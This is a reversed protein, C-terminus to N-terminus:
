KGKRVPRPVNEAGKLEKYLEKWRKAEAKRDVLPLLESLKLMVPLLGPSIELCRLYSDIGRNRLWARREDEKVWNRNATNRYHDGASTHATVANPHKELYRTFYSEAEQEQVQNKARNSLIYGIMPYPEIWGTDPSLDMAKRYEVLARDLNKHTGGLVLGLNFHHLYNTPELRILGTLIRKADEYREVRQLLAVLNVLSNIWYRTFKERDKAFRLDDKLAAFRDVADNFVHIGIALDDPARDTGSLEVGFKFLSFALNVRSDKPNFARVLANQFGWVAAEYDGGTFNMVGWFFYPEGWDPDLEFSERVLAMARAPSDPNATKVGLNYECTAMMFPIRALRPSDQRAQVLVELARQFDQKEIHQEAQRVLAFARAPNPQSPEPSEQAFSAAPAVLLVLIMVQPLSRM